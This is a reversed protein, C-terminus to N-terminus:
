KKMGPPLVGGPTFKEVKNVVPPQTMLFDYIAGLDEDTGAAMFTWPMVTNFEGSKVPANHVEPNLYSKFKLIFEEKTWKGIGTEKDPSINASRITGGNPGPMDVGGGYMKDKVFDPGDMPSHCVKCSIAIYEGRAVSNNKDPAPKFDTQPSPITRFILNVPFNFDHEPVENRIPPLTRIYAIIAKVDNEDMNRFFTFPMMPGLMKGDRDVGQTVARFIEGDTWDGIGTEKDSTINKAPVFGAGEGFDMGGMGETGPKLPGAFKDYDRMSHCDICGAFTNALYKGKEIMEPTAVIKMDPAPEAKPFSTMLYAYGIVLLVFLGGFIYMAIKFFKKM